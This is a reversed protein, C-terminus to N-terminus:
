LDDVRGGEVDHALALTMELILPDQLDESPALDSAIEPHEPVLALWSQPDVVVQLWRMAGSRVKMM